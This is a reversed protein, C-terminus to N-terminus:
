TPGRLVSDGSHGPDGSLRERSIDVFRFSGADAPLPVAVTAEGSEPVRFSGASVLDEPSNLLWIEYYEGVASAPLDSVEIVAEGGDASEIRATGRAPAGTDTVPELAIETAPAAPDGGDDGGILLGIGVGLGILTAAFGAALAPRLRLRRGRAQSAPRAAREGEDQTGPRLHSADSDTAGVTLPPPEPAEWAQPPLESLEAVMPRLREVQARFEPDERMLREAEELEQPSLEGLLYDSIAIRPQSM